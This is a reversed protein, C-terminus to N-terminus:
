IQTAMTDTHTEPPLSVRYYPSMQQQARGKDQTWHHTLAVHTVTSADVLNLGIHVYTYVGRTYQTSCVCPLYGRITRQRRRREDEKSKDGFLFSSCAMDELSFEM